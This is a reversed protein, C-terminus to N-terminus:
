TDEIENNEVVEYYYMMNKAYEIDMQSWATLRQELEEASVQDNSRRWQFSAPACAAIQRFYHLHSGLNFGLTNGNCNANVSGYCMLVDELGYSDQEAGGNALWYEPSVHRYGMSMPPLRPVPDDLHTVRWHRGRQRGMFGVFQENGVRPSGYTYCDVVFGRRELHATAITAVAGGLSHGTAIIRFGPNSRSAAAVANGAANSIDSWANAFGSHVKCGSSYVCDEWTFVLDTIFNRISHTGRISLVIERRYRDVAVYGAVGTLTGTFSAFVTARSSEVAPCAGNCQIFQRPTKEANCYAAAAHQSYYNLNVLDQQLALARREVNGAQNRVSGM